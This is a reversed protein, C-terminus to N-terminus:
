AQPGGRAGDDDVVQGHAVAGFQWECELVDRAPATKNVLLRIYLSTDIHTYVHM